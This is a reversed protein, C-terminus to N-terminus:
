KNKATWESWTKVGLGKKDKAYQYFKIIFNRREILDEQKWIDDEDEVLQLLDNSGILHQRAVIDEMSVKKANRIMDYMVMFTSTRGKGGRCHFYLWAEPPLTKVFALFEDVDNDAPRHHDLVGIRLYGLNDGNILSSETQASAIKLNIPKSQIIHGDKKKLIQSVLIGAQRKVDNFIMQEQRQINDNSEHINSQNGISYWSIPLGNVFGHSEKRLDIVWVPGDLKKLAAELSIKSFQGSGAIQLKDLGEKSPLKKIDSERFEDKSTRFNKPITTGPAEDIVLVPVNSITSDSMDQASSLQSFMLAVLAILFATYKEVSKSKFM